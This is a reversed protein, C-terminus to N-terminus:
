TGEIEGTIARKMVDLIRSDTFGDEDSFFSVGLPHLVNWADPSKGERALAFGFGRYMSSTKRTGIGVCFTIYRHKPYLFNIIANNKYWREHANGGSGQKKGEIVVIMGDKSEWIGGDPRIENMGGTAMVGSRYSYGMPKLIVELEKKVQTLQSNLKRSKQDYVETGAQIGAPFHIQDENNKSM